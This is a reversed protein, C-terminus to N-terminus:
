FNINFFNHTAINPIEKQPIQRFSYGRLLFTKKLWIEPHNKKFCLTVFFFLTLHQCQKKFVTLM